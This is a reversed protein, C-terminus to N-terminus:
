EKPILVYKRTSEGMNIKCNTVYGARNYSYEYTTPPTSVLNLDQYHFSYKRFNNKSMVLGIMPSQTIYAANPGLINKKDDYDSWQETLYPVSTTDYTLVRETINGRDDLTVVVKSGVKAPISHTQVITRGSYAYEDSYLLESTNLKYAKSQVLQGQSNYTYETRTDTFPMSATTTNILETKALQANNNYSYSTTQHTWIRLTVPDNSTSTTVQWNNNYEYSYRLQDGVYIEKVVYERNDPEDDHKGCANIFLALSCCLLLRYFPKFYNM